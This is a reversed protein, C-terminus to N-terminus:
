LSKVATDAAGRTWYGAAALWTLPHGRELLRDRLARAADAEAAIWAFTRSPLDVGDLAALLPAPDHAETLPRHVWHVTLDAATRFVQEDQAGPVAIIATIRIGPGSEEIQRGIAPLATEDGILLWHAIDGGIIKSGRPGGITARDGPRCQRAWDAAPGGPHDVVDVTLTRAAPDHRRPTYDRMAPEAGDPVILKLHDDFGTSIFGDLEPGSLTLRIMVPTLRETALVTLERRRTEHRQRTITPTDSM